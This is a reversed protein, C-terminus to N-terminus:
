LRASCAERKEYHELRRRCEDRAEMPAAALAKGAWLRAAEWSEAEAYAAALTSLCSWDEWGSLECARTALEIGMDGSRLRVDPWAIWLWAFKAYASPDRPRRIAEIHDAAAREHDGRAVYSLGRDHYAGVSRPNLAIAQDFDAVARDHQGLAAHALGRNRYAAAHQPNLAILATFDAIAEAYAGKTHHAEGRHHYALAFRPRHHIAASYDAIARDLDGRARHLDGRLHYADAFNPRLRVAETFDALARDYQGLSLYVFGRNHYAFPM